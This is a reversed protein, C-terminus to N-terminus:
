SSRAVIEPDDLPRVYEFWRKLDTFPVHGFTNSDTIEVVSEKM